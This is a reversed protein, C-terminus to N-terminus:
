SRHHISLGTFYFFAGLVPELRVAAQLESVPAIIAGYGCGDVPNPGLEGMVGKRERQVGGILGDQAAYAHILGSLRDLHPSNISSEWSILHGL